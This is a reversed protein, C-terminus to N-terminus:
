DGSSGCSLLFWLSQDWGACGFRILHLHFFSILHNLVFQRRRANTQFPAILTDLKNTQITPFPIILSVDDEQVFVSSDMANKKTISLPTLTICM